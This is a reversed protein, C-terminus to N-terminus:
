KLKGAKKFFGIVAFAERRSLMAKGIVRRWIKQQTDRQSDFHFPMAQLIENVSKVIIEKEQSSASVFNSTIKKERSNKFLEYFLIAAAHSLNLARYEPSSPITVVFDCKLIESNTLGTTDRGFVVVTGAKNLEAHKEGFQAPSLPIRAVNSATGLAATTAVLTNFKKLDDFTKMIVAKKLIDRAHKSRWLAEYSLHDCQPNVLHLNKLGFNKMSRAVAGVNGPASPEVLAVSIM